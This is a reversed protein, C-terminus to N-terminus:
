LELEVAVSRMSSEFLQRLTDQVTPATPKTNSREHLLELQLSMTAAAEELAQASLRKVPVGPKQLRLQALKARQVVEEIVAPITKADALRQAVPLLDTDDAIAKGGYLRLLKECAQADPPTVDIVADLRGPRLMAPNLSKMDNTTLVVIIHSNKSDIGDITNLIDDMAVTRKDGALERDIDEGFIVAAPNQYQKAFEIAYPLEDARAIYVFTLGHDVALRSAVTAAMTKGTGYTGGLLVGRKVRIGNALLDPARTIPTFLNTEIATQVDQAYILREPKVHSVDMFKPEPMQLPVGDDDLFRMKLAKGRYISNVALEHRVAEFVGLITAEDKRRVTAQLAFVIHQDAYTYSTSVTGTIGPLSFSGWPVSRKAKPGISVTIMHPPTDGFFGPTPEAPTWGFMRTLVTDLACAGDWPFAEFSEQMTVKEEEYKLRRQLTDIAGATTMNDPLILAEGHRQIQVVDVQVAQSLTKSM